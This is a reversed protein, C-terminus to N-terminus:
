RASKTGEGDALYAAVSTKTVKATAAVRCSDDTRAWRATWQRSEAVTLHDPRETRTVEEPRGDV